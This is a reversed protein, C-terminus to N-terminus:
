SSLLELKKKVTEYTISLPFNPHGDRVLLAKDRDHKLIFRAKSVSSKSFETGSTEGPFLDNRKGQETAPFMMAYTM